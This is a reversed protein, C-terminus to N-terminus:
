RNAVVWFGPNRTGFVSKHTIFCYNKLDLKTILERKCKSSIKIILLFYDNGFKVIKNLQWIVVGFLITVGCFFVVWQVGLEDEMDRM